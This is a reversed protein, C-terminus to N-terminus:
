FDHDVDQPHNRSHMWSEIGAYAAFLKLQKSDGYMLNRRVRGSILCTPDGFALVFQFGSETLDFLPSQYKVVPDDPFKHYTSEVSGTQVMYGKKVLSRCTVTVQSVFVTDAYQKYLKRFVPRALMAIHPGRRGITGNHMPFFVFSFMVARERESLSTQIGMETLPQQM